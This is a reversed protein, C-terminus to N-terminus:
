MGATKAIKTIENIFKKAHPDPDTEIKIPKSIDCDKGTANLKVEVYTWPTSLTTETKSDRLMCEVQIGKGDELFYVRERDADVIEVVMTTAPTGRPAGKVWRATAAPQKGTLYGSTGSSQEVHFIPEPSEIWGRATHGCLRPGTNGLCLEPALLVDYDYLTDNIEHHVHVKVVQETQLLVDAGFPLVASFPQDGVKSKEFDAFAYEGHKPSEAVVGTIKFSAKETGRSYAARGRVAGASCCGAVSVTMLATGLLHLRRM